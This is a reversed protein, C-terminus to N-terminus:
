IRKALRWGVIGTLGLGYLFLTAPEPAPDEPNIRVVMDNFDLDSVNHALDEMGIYYTQDIGDNFVAFHQNNSDTNGSVSGQSLFLGGPGSLYFGFSSTPIFVQVNYPSDPGSFIQHLVTPATTDYWGFTNSNANGAVELLLGAAQSGQANFYINNNVGTGAANGYYPMVGPGAGGSFYGTNAMWDGINANSGDSSAGDWYPTGNNNLDGTSWSIWSGNNALTLAHAGSSVGALILLLGSVFALKKM